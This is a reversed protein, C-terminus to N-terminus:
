SAGEALREGDDPDIWEEGDLPFFFTQEVNPNRALYNRFAEESVYDAATKTRVPRSTFATVLLDPVEARPSFGFTEFVLAWDGRATYLSLRAAAPYVYGNDLMPFVFDRAGQDLIELIDGPSARSM